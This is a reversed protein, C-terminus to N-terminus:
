RRLRPKRVVIKITTPTTIPTITTSTTTTTPARTTTTTPAATTTTPARTTTTTAQASSSTTPASTSTTSGGAHDITDIFAQYSPKATFDRRLLGFNAERDAPDSGTDRAAYWFLPGTWIWDHAAVLAARAIAAQSQESVAGSASGTPAGYETLWVQKAADGNSVMVDHVLPLREFTNWSATSPDRPLAPYSYPHIAVADFSARAGAAYMRSVFTVPSIESGDPADTAPALGASVVKAQPDNARIAGATPRLLTVYAAADPRTTWSWTLNPENWIEWTHVGRPGYRAALKGTFAAFALPSVPAVGAGPTQAAWAVSYGPVGLIKLGRQTSAAVIADFPAWNWVGPQPQVSPWPFDLRLWTAGTAAMADLERGQDAPSMWLIDAGPSFGVGSGPVVAAPATTANAASPVLANVGIALALALVVVSLRAIRNVPAAPPATTV